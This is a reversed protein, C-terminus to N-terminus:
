SDREGGGGGLRRVIRDVDYVCGGWTGGGVAQLAAWLRTEGPLAADPRLEPHRTRRGLLELAQAPSLDQRADGILDVSGSLRGRDVCIRIRDGDRLKGIPGGALAEPAVHGICAGTSVGSFRADTLVAVDRGWPLYKLASTLQYTEEMGSGMPGRGALVLIDGPRVPRDRQGKIAAIAERETTFVRAPGTKRYVNDEDVVAPDIATAKIVSGEPCLNGQPFCVTSTMGRRRAEAPPIIVDEPDVGDEDRLLQRLRQRQDSNEWLRLQEDWTLGAVTRADLELLDLQRLHLMLEPVGGALFLQVTPHNRPGNPLVDVFRPVSRNIQTWDDITPRPLGASFAVAPLHLLLNTSGGCAAHVVMANRISADTLIHRTTVGRRTLNWLARASRRALDTWIPQGSPMLAAHPLTLGLAEAVVQATAATGLFQCGGGASGCAGCGARRADELSIEGHTYRAGLTQVVATDEGDIAPLTVGGPVLV